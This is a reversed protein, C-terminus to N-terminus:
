WPACMARVPHIAGALESVTELAFVAFNTTGISPTGGGGIPLWYYGTCDRDGSDDQM